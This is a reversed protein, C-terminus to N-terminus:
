VIEIPRAKSLDFPKIFSISLDNREEWRNKTIKAQTGQSIFDTNIINYIYGVDLIMVSKGGLKNINRFLIDDTSVVTNIEKKAIYEDIINDIDNILTVKDMYESFLNGLIKIKNKNELDVSIILNDVTNNALLLPLRDAFKSIIADKFYKEDLQRLDIGLDNCNGNSIIGDSMYKFLDKESRANLLLIRENISSMHMLKTYFYSELKPDDLINQIFGYDTSQIINDYTVLMKRKDEYNM